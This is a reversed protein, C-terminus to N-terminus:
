EESKTEDGLDVGRLCLAGNRAERVALLLAECVADEDAERSRRVAVRAYNEQLKEALEHDGLM